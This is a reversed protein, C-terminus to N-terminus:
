DHVKLANLAVVGGILNAVLDARKRPTAALKPKEIWECALAKADLQMMGAVWSRGVTSLLGEQIITM